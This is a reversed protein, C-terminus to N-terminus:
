PLVAAVSRSQDPFIRDEPACIRLHCGGPGLEIEIARFPALWEDLLRQLVAVYVDEKSAFYYFLNTKSVNAAEAIQDVTTGHLGFRSFLRLAADLIASNKAETRQQRRLMSKSLGSREALEGNTARPANLKLQTAEIQTGTLQLSKTKKM